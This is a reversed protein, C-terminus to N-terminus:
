EQEQPNAYALLQFRAGETKLLVPCHVLLRVEVGIWMWSRVGDNKVGGAPMVVMREACLAEDSGKCSWDADAMRARKPVFQNRGWVENLSRRKEEGTEADELVFSSRRMGFVSLAM